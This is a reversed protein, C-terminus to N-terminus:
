VFATGTFPAPIMDAFCFDRKDIVPSLFLFRDNYISGGRQQVQPDWDQRAQKAGLLLALLSAARHGDKATTPQCFHCHYPLSNQEMNCSTSRCVLRESPSQAAM